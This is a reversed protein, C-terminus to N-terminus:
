KVGTKNRKLKDVEYKNKDYAKIYKSITKYVSCIFPDNKSNWRTFYDKDYLEINNLYNSTHCNYCILTDCKQCEDNPKNNCLHECTANNLIEDINEDFISCLKHKNDAENSYVAGHCKYINGDFSLSFNDICASCYARLAQPARYYERFWLLKPESLKLEHVIILKLNDCLDNIWQQKLEKDIDKYSSAFEVVFGVSDNVDLTSIDLYAEYFHKFDEPCIVSHVNINYKHEKACIINRKVIESSNNRKADHNPNGDYSIQINFRDRYKDFFATNNEILTGNTIINFDVNDFKSMVDTVYEIVPMNLMPEGGFYNIDLKNYEVAKQTMYKLYAEVAEASIYLNERNRILESCYKCKLNCSDTVNIEFHLTDKVRREM